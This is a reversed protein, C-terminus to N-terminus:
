QQYFLELKFLLSQEYKAKNNILLLWHNFNNM